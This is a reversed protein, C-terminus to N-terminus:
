KRNNLVKVQLVAPKDVKDASINRESLPSVIIRMGGFILFELNIFKGQDCIKTLVPSVFFKDRVEFFTVTLFNTRDVAARFTINRIVTGAGSTASRFWEEIFVITGFSLEKAADARSPERRLVATKGRQFEATGM